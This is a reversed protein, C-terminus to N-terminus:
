SSFLDWMTLWLWSFVFLLHDWVHLDFLPNFFVWMLVLFLLFWCFSSMSLEWCWPNSNGLLFVSVAAPSWGQGCPQMGLHYLSIALRGSTCAPRLTCTPRINSSLLIQKRQVILHSGEMETQQKLGDKAVPSCLWTACLSLQGKLLVFLGSFAPLVVGGAWLFQGSVRLVCIGLSLWSCSGEPKWRCGSSIRPWLAIYVFIVM